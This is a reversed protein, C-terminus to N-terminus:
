YPNSGRTRQSRQRRLRVEGYEWGRLPHHVVPTSVSTPGPGVPPKTGVVDVPAHLSHFFVVRKVLGGVYRGDGWDRCINKPVFM